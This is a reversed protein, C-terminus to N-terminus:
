NAFSRPRQEPRSDYPAALQINLRDRLVRLPTELHQDNDHFPWKGTMLRACRAVELLAPLATVTEWIASFLSSQEGVEMLESLQLCSLYERPSITTGLLIWVDAMAEERVSTGCGFLVHCRDHLRFLERSPM